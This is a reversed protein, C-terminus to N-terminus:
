RKSSKPFDSISIAITHEDLNMKKKQRTKSVEHLESYESSIRHSSHLIGCM